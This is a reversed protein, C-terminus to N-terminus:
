KEDNGHGWMNLKMQRSWEHPSERKHCTFLPGLWRTKLHQCGSVSGACCSQAASPHAVLLVAGFRSAKLFPYIQLM